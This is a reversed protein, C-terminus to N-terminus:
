QNDENKRKENAAIAAKEAPTYINEVSSIIATKESRKNKTNESFTEYDQDVKIEVPSPGKRGCSVLLLASFIFIYGRFM